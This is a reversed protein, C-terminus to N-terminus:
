PEESKVCGGTGRVARYSGQRRAAGGFGKGAHSMGYSFQNLVLM